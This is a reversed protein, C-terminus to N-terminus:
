PIIERGIDHFRLLESISRKVHDINGWVQLTFTLHFFIKQRRHHSFSTYTKKKLCFVAHSVHADDLSDSIRTRPIFPYRNCASDLFGGNLTNDRKRRSIKQGGTGVSAAHCTPVVRLVSRLRTPRCHSRRRCTARISR